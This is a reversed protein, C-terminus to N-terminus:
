TIEIGKKIKRRSKARGKSTAESNKQPSSLKRAKKEKLINSYTLNDADKLQM